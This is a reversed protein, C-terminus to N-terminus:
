RILEKVKSARRRSVPVKKGNDTKVYKRGEETIIKSIHRSAVWYSRHTQIGELSSGLDAIADKLNYLVLKEGVTTVVRVYHLEAKLYVIDTGLEKPILAYFDPLAASMDGSDLVESGKTYPIDADRFSLRLIRPANIAVWTLTVPFVVGSFEEWVLAWIEGLSNLVLWDDLSFLYDIILGLPVFLVSGFLGSLILKVWRNLENFRNIRQLSMHLSILLPLLLGIQIVWIVVGKLLGTGETGVPELAAFILVLAFGVWLYYSYGPASRLNM